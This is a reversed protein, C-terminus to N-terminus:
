GTRGTPRSRGGPRVRRAQGLVDLPEALVARVFESDFGVRVVRLEVDVEGQQAFPIQVDDAQVPGRSAPHPWSRHPPSCGRARPGTDTGRRTRGRRRRPRRTTLRAPGQHHLPAQHGPDPSRVLGKGWRPPGHHNGRPEHRRGRRIGPRTSRVAPVIRAHHAIGQATLESVRTDACIVGLLEGPHATSQARLAQVVAAVLGDASTTVTRPSEGSRLSRTPKQDPAIRALLDRVSELIEQTTRYSVTLNHLKFRPGVHPSLAEKWDRATAVPGAQAFDGVLTMARAPCRRVIMRWQM